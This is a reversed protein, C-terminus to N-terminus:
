GLARKIRRIQEVISIEAFATVELERDEFVNRKPQKAAWAAIVGDRRRVLDVIHPQYLRLMAGIWRNVLWSPRAEDILFRDLMAIVDRARYWTEDTVWRNVTFLRIPLGHDDMSIAVLHAVAEGDSPFKTKAPRVGDPMGPARLFTHFHGHETWDGGRHAHYYYQAHSHRDFADGNPYHNHEYFTGEGRLVEAVPNSGNEAMLRLCEVVQEGAAAM